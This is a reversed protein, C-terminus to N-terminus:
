NLRTNTPDVVMVEAAAHACSREALPQLVFRQYSASIVRSAAPISLPALAVAVTRHAEVEADETPIAPKPLAADLRGSFWRVTLHVPWWPVMAVILGCAAGLVWGGLFITVVARFAVMTASWLAALITAM